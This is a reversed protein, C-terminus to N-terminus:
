KISLTFYLSKAGGIHVFDCAKIVVGTGDDKIAGKIVHVDKRFVKASKIRIIESKKERETCVHIQLSFPKSILCLVIYNRPKKM